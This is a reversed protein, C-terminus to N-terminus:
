NERGPFSGGRLRVDRKGFLHISALIGLVIPLYFATLPLLYRSDILGTVIYAFPLSWALLKLDYYTFKRDLLYSKIRVYRLTRRVVEPIVVVTSVFMLAPNSVLSFPIVLLRLCELWFYTLGRWKERLNSHILSLVLAALSMSVFLSATVRSVSGVFLSLLVFAATKVAMVRYINECASFRYTPRSERKVAVCDNYLYGAEYVSFFLVYLSLALFALPITDTSFFSEYGGHVLYYSLLLLPL